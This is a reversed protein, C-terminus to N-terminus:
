DRKDQKWPGLTKVVGEETIIRGCSALLLLQNSANKTIYNVPKDPYKLRMYRLLLNISSNQGEHGTFQAIEPSLINTYRGVFIDQYYVSIGGNPNDKETFKGVKM